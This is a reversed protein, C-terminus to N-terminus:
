IAPRPLACKVLSALASVRIQMADMRISAWRAPDISAREYLGPESSGNQEACDILELVVGAGRFFAWLIKSDRPHQRLQETIEALREAITTRGEPAFVNPYDRLRAILSEPSQRNRRRMSRRCHWLYALLIGVLMMQFSLLMRLDKGAARERDSRAICNQWLHQYRNLITLHQCSAL